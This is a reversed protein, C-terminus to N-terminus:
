HAPYPQPSGGWQLLITLYTVIRVFKAKAQKLSLALIMAVGDPIKEMLNQRRQVIEAKDM